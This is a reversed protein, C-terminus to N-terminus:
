IGLKELIQEDPFSPQTGKRTVSDAAVICAAEVMEEMPLETRRVLLYALAGIFADGAGTSDVSEVKPSEVYFINGTRKEAYVAGDAGLTILVGKCGMSILHSAAKEAEMKNTVPLKAFQSAEHENVCFITPLTLLAPDYESTYPAGNLISIGSCMKLASVAVDVSTELQLILVKATKICEAAEEIDLTNLTKNAGSVIVIQNEGNASVCIQAIGTMEGNTKLVFSTDVGHKILNRIYKEGWSDGGVRAILTANVGLKSAAICQNAGKGGFNTVFETGHITEGPSPLRQTYTVFDVMCSGVVVVENSLFDSNADM